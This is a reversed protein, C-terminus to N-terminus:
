LLERQARAGAPSVDPSMRAVLLDVEAALLDFRRAEPSVPGPLFAVPLGKLSAEHFVDVRPIVTELVGGFGSWIEGLVTLSFAKGKEVMTPLFGLLRLRPNEEEKVHELVRLVQSVSRLALAEAAFPLLVFDASSFAARTAPGLGSPTDLLVFDVGNEVRRLTDDLIGPTRLMEEYECVDVPDLRGRPLLVLGPLKTPLVAQEPSM